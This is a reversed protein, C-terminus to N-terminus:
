STESQRPTPGQWRGDRGHEPLIARRRPARRRAKEKSDAPELELELTRPHWPLEALQDHLCRAEFADAYDTALILTSTLLCGM